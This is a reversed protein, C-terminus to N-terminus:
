LCDHTEEELADQLFAIEVMVEDLREALERELPTANQTNDVQRILEANTLATLM